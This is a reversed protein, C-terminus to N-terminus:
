DTCISELAEKKKDDNSRAYYVSMNMNTHGLIEIISRKDIDTNMILGTAVTHRLQYMNFPIKFLRLRNGLESVSFYKGYRNPFLIDGYSTYNNFLKQLANPIPIKRVSAETKCSRINNFNVKLLDGSSALSSGLEKTVSIFGDKIDEPALAFCEAPRLGTFWMTELAMIVSKAEDKPFAEDICKEIKDLTERDTIVKKHPKVIAQSKPPVIGLTADHQIYDQILATKYIRKWISLMRKITDDSCEEIMSNLCQVIDTKTVDVMKKNKNVVYKNFYLIHKRKTEERLPIIDFSEDFVEQLTVKQNTKHAMSYNLQCENRYRVAEDYARRASGYKTESFTKDVGLDTIRVVFKWKGTDEFYRQSIFSEKKFKNM